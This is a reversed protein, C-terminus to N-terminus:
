EAALKAHKDALENPEVEAHSCVWTGVTTINKEKLRRIHKRIESITSTHNLCTKGSSISTLTRQGTTTVRRDDKLELCFEGYSVMVYCPYMDVPM